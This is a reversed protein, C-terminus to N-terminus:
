AAAAPSGGCSERTGQILVTVRCAIDIMSKLSANVSTLYTMYEHGKQMHGSGKATATQVLLANVVGPCCTDYSSALYNIASIQM